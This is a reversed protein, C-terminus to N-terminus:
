EEHRPGGASHEVAAVPIKISLGMASHCGNCSKGRHALATVAQPVPAVSRDIIEPFCREAVWRTNVMSLVCWRDDTIVAAGNLHSHEHLLILAQLIETTVSGVKFGHAKEFAQISDMQEKRTSFPAVLMLVKKPFFFAPFLLVRRLSVNSVAYVVQVRGNFKEASPVTELLKDYAPTLLRGQVYQRQLGGIAASCAMEALRETALRIGPVKEPDVMIVPQGDPGLLREVFSQRFYITELAAEATPQVLQVQAMTPATALAVFMATKFRMNM